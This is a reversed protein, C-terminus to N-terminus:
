RFGFHACDTKRRRCILVHEIVGLQQQKAVHRSTENAGEANCKCEAEKPRAPLSPQQQRNRAHTNSQNRKARATTAHVSAPEPLLAANLTRTQRRGSTHAKLGVERERERCGTFFYLQLGRARSFRYIRIWTMPRSPRPVSCGSFWKTPQQINYVLLLTSTSISRSCM